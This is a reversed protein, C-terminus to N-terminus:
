FSYTFGAAGQWFEARGDAGYRGQLAKVADVDLFVYRADAHVTVRAALRLDAGAGAHFAFKNETHRGVDANAGEGSTRVWYYGIGGLLYPQFRSRFFPYLLASVQVPIEEVFLVSAGDAAYTERRYSLLGEIGVGGTLRARLHLGGSFARGEASVGMTPGAQVGIGTGPDSWSQARVPGAFAAAAFLAIPLRHRM